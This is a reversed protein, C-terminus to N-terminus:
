RSPNEEAQAIRQSLKIGCVVLALFQDSPQRPTITAILALLADAQVAFSGPKSSGRVLIYVSNVRDVLKRNPAVHPWNSTKALLVTSLM